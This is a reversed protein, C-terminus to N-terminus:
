VKVGQVPLRLSLWQVVLSTGGTPNQLKSTWHRPTLPSELICFIFCAKGPRLFHSKNPSQSVSSGRLGESVTCAGLPLSWTSLGLKWRMADQPSPHHLTSLSGDAMHAKGAEGRKQGEPSNQTHLGLIWGQLHDNDGLAPTCLVSIVARPKDRQWREARQVGEGPNVLVMRSHGSDKGCCQKLLM